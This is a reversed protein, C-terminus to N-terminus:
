QVHAARPQKTNDTWGASPMHWPPHFIHHKGKTRSPTKSHQRPKVEDQQCLGAEDSGARGIGVDAGDADLEGADRMEDGAVSSRAETLDMARTAEAAAETTM